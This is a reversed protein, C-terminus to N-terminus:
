IEKYGLDNIKYFCAQLQEEIQIYNIAHFYDQNKNTKIHM